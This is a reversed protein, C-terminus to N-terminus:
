RHPEDEALLKLLKKKKAKPKEPERIDSGSMKGSNVEEIMGLQADTGDAKAIKVLASQNQDLGLEKAKAKAEESPGAIDLSRRVEDRTFGLAKAAKKIGRDRPQQGGPPAFQAGEADQLVAQVLEAVHRRAPSGHPRRPVPKGYAAVHPCRSEHRGDCLRERAGVGTEEGSGAPLARCRAFDEYRSGKQHAESHHAHATRQAM